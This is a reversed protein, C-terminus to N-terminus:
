KGGVRQPVHLALNLALFGGLSIGVVIAQEIGLGDFVATLWEATEIRNKPLYIPASLNLYCGM